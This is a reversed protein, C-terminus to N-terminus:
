DEGTGTCAFNMSTMDTPCGNQITSHHVDTCVLYGLTCDKNKNQASFASSIVEKFLHEEM